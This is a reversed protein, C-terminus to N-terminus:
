VNNSRVLFENVLTDIPITYKRAFNQMAGTLFSQTFYFGSIWFITPAGTEFRRLAFWDFILDVFSSHLVRGCSPPAYWDILFKLRRCLDTVYPALPKRSPYSKGAWM